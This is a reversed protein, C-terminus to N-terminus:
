GRSQLFCCWRWLRSGLVPSVESPRFMRYRAWSKEASAGVIGVRIENQTM